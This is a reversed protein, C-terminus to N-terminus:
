SRELLREWIIKSVSLTMIPPQLCCLEAYESDGTPHLRLPCNQLCCTRLALCAAHLGHACESLGDRRLQCRSRQPEARSANARTGSGQPTKVLVGVPVYDCFGARAPVVGSGGTIPTAECVWRWCWSPVAPGWGQRQCVLFELDKVLPSLFFFGVCCWPLFM